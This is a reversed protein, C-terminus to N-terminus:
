IINGSNLHLGRLMQEFMLKTYKEKDEGNAIEEKIQKDIDQIKKVVDNNSYYDNYNIEM